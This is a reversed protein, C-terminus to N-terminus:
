VAYLICNTYPAVKYFYIGRTGGRWFLVLYSVGGWKIFWFGDILALFIIALISAIVYCIIGYKLLLRIFRALKEFENMICFYCSIVYLDFWFMIFWKILGLAAAGGIGKAAQETVM